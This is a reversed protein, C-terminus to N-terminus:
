GESLTFQVIRSTVLNSSVLLSTALANFHDTLLRAALCRQWSIGDVVVVVLVLAPWSLRSESWVTLFVVGIEITYLLVGYRTKPHGVLRIWAKARLM